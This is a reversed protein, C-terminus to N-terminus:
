CNGLSRRAAVTRVALTLPGLAIRRLKGRHSIRMAWTKVGSPQVILLLGRCGGDRIERRQKGARMRRVAATTLHTAM